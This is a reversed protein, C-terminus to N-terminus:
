TGTFVFLFNDPGPYGVAWMFIMVIVKYRSNGYLKVCVSGYRKYATFTIRNVIVVRPRIVFAFFSISDSIGGARFTSENVNLVIFKIKVLYIFFIAFYVIYIPAKGFLLLNKWFCVKLNNKTLIYTCMKKM